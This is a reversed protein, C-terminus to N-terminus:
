IAEKTDNILKANMELAEVALYLPKAIGPHQEIYVDIVAKLHTASWEINNIAADLERRAWQRTSKPM